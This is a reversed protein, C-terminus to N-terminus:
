IMNRRDVPKATTKGPAAQAPAAKPTCNGSSTKVVKAPQGAGTSSTEVTQTCGNSTTTVSSYSYSAGPAAGTSVVQMGPAGARAQASATSAQQIMAAMQRDMAAEMRAMEAFPDEAAAPAVVVQPPVDGHYHLQGITGDPLTVNLIHEHEAAAAAGVLALSGGLAILAKTVMQM